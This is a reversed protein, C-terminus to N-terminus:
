PNSEVWTAAAATFSFMFLSCRLPANPPMNTPNRGLLSPFSSSSQHHLQHTTDALARLHHTPSQRPTLSKPLLPRSWWHSRRCIWHSMGHRQQSRRWKTEDLIDTPNRRVGHVIAELECRVTPSHCISAGATFILHRHHRAVAFYTTTVFHSGGVYIYIYKIMARATKFNDIYRWIGSKFNGIINDSKIWFIM